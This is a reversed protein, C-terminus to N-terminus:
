KTSDSKQEIKEEVEEVKTSKDLKPVLARIFAHQLLNGVATWVGVDTNTISGSIPIKTALQDKPHNKFLTTTAGVIAQWFVQLINKKREKEWAFVDLDDFFVKVYGEYQGEVSAESAFLAMRGREVDFKGYARLFDNLTTLDVNTVQANVEFTPLKAFPNIKLALDLDGGDPTKGRAIVGAPLKDNKDRSNSLNTAMAYLDEVRIDVRPTSHFNQFHIEGQRIEFRNLKFPFLSELTQDWSRGKGTQSQEETPGAVFNVQPQVMEVEGVIAGHFLERWEMSLDMTRAAFLPVPVEGTKKNIKINHIQYAGRYLHVDVDGIGGGYEPGKNLQRNVYYKIASPMALRIAVALVLLTLLTWATGRSIRKLRRVWAKPKATSKHEAMSRFWATTTGAGAAFVVTNGSQLNCKSLPQVM